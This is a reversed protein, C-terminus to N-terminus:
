FDPNVVEGGRYTILARLVKENATRPIVRVQGDAMVANTGTPFMGGLRPLSLDKQYPLDRPATWPVAEGAEVVMLTNSTGDQIHQFGTQRRGDFLAEPGTFVQYFTSYPERTTGQVPAYVKPMQALLKKNHPSDWPEDRKFQNYLNDQELYPLLEVRWSYLPTKGDKSYVVAPPLRNHASHYNHMALAIQKLNNASTARNAAERVKQVAPLMLGTLMASLAKGDASFHALLQRGRQEVKVKDLMGELVQFMQKAQEAEPAGAPIQQKLQNLSQRAFDLAARAAKEAERARGDDAFSLQLDLVLDNGLDVALTASQMELLAKYPQAEPPLDQKAKAMLEPPVKVMAVLHRNEMGSPLTVGPILLAGTPPQDLFQRVASETGAVATREDPFGLATKADAFYAKNGHQKPAANPAIMKRIKGPDFPKSARAVAVFDPPNDFDLKKVLVSVREIDGPSMGLDREMEQLMGPNFAMFTQVLQGLQGKWVEGVRATLFLDANGADVKFDALPRGGEADGRPPNQVVPPPKKDDKKFWLFYAGVSGGALLLVAAVIGVILGVPAGKPKRKKKKRRRETEAEDDEPSSDDFRLSDAAAQEAQRSATRGSQNSDSSPIVMETACYPCKTRRGAHEPKARLEEGCVCEFRVVSASAVKPKAPAPPAQARPPADPATSKVAAATKPVPVPQGCAPCKLRKGANEDATRLQKGCACKFQIPM